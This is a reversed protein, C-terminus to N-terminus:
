PGPDEFGGHFLQHFGGRDDGKERALLGPFNFPMGSSPWALCDRKGELKGMARRKLISVGKIFTECLGALAAKSM